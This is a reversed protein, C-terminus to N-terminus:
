SSFLVLLERHDVARGAEPLARKGGLPRLQQGGFADRHGPQGDVVVVVVDDPEQGMQDLGDARHRGRQRGLEALDQLLVAVLGLTIDQGRQDILDMLTARAHRQHDVVPLADGVRRGDRRHAVQEIVDSGAQAHHHGAAALAAQRHAPHPHLVFKKFDVGGCQTEVDSFRLVKQDVQTPQVQVM